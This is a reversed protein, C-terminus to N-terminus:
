SAIFIVLRGVADVTVKGDVHLGMGIPQGLCDSILLMAWKEHQILERSM